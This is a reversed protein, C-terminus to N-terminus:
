SAVDATPDRVAEKLVHSLRKMRTIADHLLLAGIVAGFLLSTGLLSLNLIPVIPKTIGKAFYASAAALIGALATVLAVATLRFTLIEIQLELRRCLGHLQQSPIGALQELLGQELLRERDFDDGQVGAPNRVIAWIRLPNVARVLWVLVLVVTLWFAGVVLPRFLDKPMWAAAGILIMTVMAGLLGMVALYKLRFRAHWRGRLERPEPRLADLLLRTAPLACTPEDVQQTRLLNM